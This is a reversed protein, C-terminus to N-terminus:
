PSIVARRQQLSAIARREVLLAATLTLIVMTLPWMALAYRPLGTQIGSVLLFNAHLAVSAAALGARELSVPRVLAFVLGFFSAVFAGGLAAKVPWYVWPRVARYVIPNRTITPATVTLQRLEEAFRPEDAANRLGPMFWLGYWHTSIQRLYGDPHERIATLAWRWAVANLRVFVQQRTDGPNQHRIGDAVAAQATEIDHYANASAFYYADIGRIRELERGIPAALEVFRAQLPDDDPSRDLFQGVYGLLSFGGFAQTGVVRSRVFNVASAASLSVVVPVLLLAATRLRARAIWAIPLLAAMFSYGSPKLLVITASVAGLAVATGPLPRDIFRLALVFYVMVASIFLAEPLVTFAYSVLAPNGLISLQLLVCWHTRVVRRMEYSLWAAGAALALLQVAPVWGIPVIKLFLPYAPTRGVDWALYSRSDPELLPLAHFSAVSRAVVMMIGSVAVVAVALGPMPPAPRRGTM